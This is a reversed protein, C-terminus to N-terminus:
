ETFLQQAARHIRGIETPDDTFANVTATFSPDLTVHGTTPYSFAWILLLPGAVTETTYEDLDVAEMVMDLLEEMPVLPHLGNKLYAETEEVAQTRPLRHLCYNTLRIRQRELEGMPSPTVEYAVRERLLHEMRVITAPDVHDLHMVYDVDQHGAIMHTLEAIVEEPRDDMTSALSLLSEPLIYQEVLAVSELIAVGVPLPTEDVLTIGYQKLCHEVAVVFVGQVRDRFLDNDSIGDQMGFVQQLEDMHTSLGVGELVRLANLYQELQLPTVVGELALMLEENM